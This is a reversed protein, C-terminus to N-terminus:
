NMERWPYIGAPCTGEGTNKSRRIWTFHIICSVSWFLQITDSVTTPLFLLILLRCKFKSVTITYVNGHSIYTTGPFPFLLCEYLNLTSLSFDVSNTLWRPCIPLMVDMVNSKDDWKGFFDWRWVDFYIQENHNQYNQEVTSIYEHTRIFAMAYAFVTTWLAHKSVNAGQTM